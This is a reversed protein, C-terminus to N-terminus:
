RLLVTDADQFRTTDSIVITDGEELGSLIEVDTLSTGGVTITTLRALDGDVVFVKRGGGAELFPGRRVTLADDTSSLQIRTSVRRNQKLGRPPAQQFVVRGEVLSGTVEPSVSSVRGFHKTNEYTIEVTAGIEIDDAYTEPIQIEIEFASLDIVTLLEQNPVVNDSPNVVISGVVGDVPSLLDLESV